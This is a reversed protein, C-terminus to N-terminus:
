ECDGEIVMQEILETHHEAFAEALYLRAAAAQESNGTLALVLLTAADQSAVDEPRIRWTKVECLDDKADEFLSLWHGAMSMAKDAAVELMFEPPPSNRPDAPHGNYRGYDCDYM